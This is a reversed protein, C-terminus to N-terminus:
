RVETSSLAGRKYWALTMANSGSPVEFGHNRLASAGLGIGGAQWGMGNHLSASKDTPKKRLHEMVARIAQLPIGIPYQTVGSARGGPVGLLFTDGKADWSAAVDIRGGTACRAIKKLWKNHSQMELGDKGRVSLAEEQGYTMILVEAIEANNM